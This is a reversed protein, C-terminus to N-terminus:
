KTGGLLFSYIQAGIVSSLPVTYAIGKGNKVTRFKEDLLKLLAPTNDQRVISFLVVKGEGALGGLDLGALAETPITGRAACFLQVNAGAAGLVDAYYEAKSRSVVTVLLSLSAPKATSKAM